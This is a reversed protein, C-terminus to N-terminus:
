KGHLHRIIEEAWAQATGPGTATGLQSSTTVVRYGAATFVDKPIAYEEDRFGTCGIVLVVQKM